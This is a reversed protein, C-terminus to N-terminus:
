IKSHLIESVHTASGWLDAGLIPLVLARVTAAARLTFQAAATRDAGVPPLSILALITLARRDALVHALARAAAVAAEDGLLTLM